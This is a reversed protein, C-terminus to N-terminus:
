YVVASWFDSIEASTASFFTQIFEDHLKLRTFIDTLLVIVPSLSDQVELEKGRLRSRIDAITNCKVVEKELEEPMKARAFRVSQLGLNLISM